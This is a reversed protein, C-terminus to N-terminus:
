DDAVSRWRLPDSGSMRPAGGRLTTQVFQQLLPLMVADSLSSALRSFGTTRNSRRPTSIKTSISTMMLWGTVKLSVRKSSGGPVRLKAMGPIGFAGFAPRKKKMSKIKLEVALMSILPPNKKM